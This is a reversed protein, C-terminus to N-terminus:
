QRAGSGANVVEFSGNRGAMPRVAWGPELELTWGPGKLARADAPAVVRVLRNDSSLIAGVSEVQLKGWDASFTGNPYYTGQTGFPVLLYPNFTRHLNAVKPFNLTPGEVFTKTLSDLLAQHRAERQHESAAVARFGYRVAAADASVTGTPVAEILQSELSAGGRVRKRWDPSLRDLLLGMAPGTVYAFSRAYANQDEFSEVQRALRSAVEGTEKMAVVTGTYEPLGEHREMTAERLRAGEFLSYRRARFILADAVSKRLDQDTESRLARALARLELRFWLRGNETDLHANPQDSASLDLADQIRHFAEHTILAVQSYPDVATSVHGHDM